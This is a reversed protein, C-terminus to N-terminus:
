SSFEAYAGTPQPYPAALARDAAAGMQEEVAADVAAIDDASVGFRERLAAAAVVLPDRAKWVDLEGPKRYTGPDSRSHGVFRYTLAEIFAPGRRARARAVADRAAARM